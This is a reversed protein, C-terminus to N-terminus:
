VVSKRDLRLTGCAVASRTVESLHFPNGACVAWVRNLAEAAVGGGLSGRLWQVVQDRTFPEVDIRDAIGDRWLEIWPSRGAAFTQVTAILQIEDQRALGALVRASLDDLLHADDVRVVIARGAAMTRLGALVQGRVIGIAAAGDVRVDPLVDLLAALPAGSRDRSAGISIWVPAGASASVARHGLARVSGSSYFAESSAFSDVLHTKGVGVPGVVLVSRGNRLAGEIQALEDPRPVATERLRVPASPASVTAVTRRWQADIGQTM